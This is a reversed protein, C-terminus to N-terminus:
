TDAHVLHAIKALRQSAGQHHNEKYVSVHQLLRGLKLITKIFQSHANTPSHLVSKKHHKHTITETSCDGTKDFSINAPSRM